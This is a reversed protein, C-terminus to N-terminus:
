KLGGPLKSFETHLRSYSDEMSAALVKTEAILPFFNTDGSWRPVIHWHLHDPIGAGAVAGHNLGINFGENQYVRELIEVAHHLLEYIQSREEGRLDPLRGCHRKPLILLHGTNYPYKNMVVMAFSTQHLVLHEFGVGASASTCFVCSSPRILKRVYRYREPRLLFDREQPWIESRLMAVSSMKKSKSFTNSTKGGSSSLGNKKANKLLSKAKQSKSNKSKVKSKKSKM